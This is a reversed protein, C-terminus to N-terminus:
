TAPLLSSLLENFLIKSLYTCTGFFLLVLAWMGAAYMPATRQRIRPAPTSGRLPLPEAKEADGAERVFLIETKGIQIRDGDQLVTPHAVRKGNV